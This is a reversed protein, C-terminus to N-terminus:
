WQYLGFARQDADNNGVIVVGRVQALAQLGDVTLRVFVDLDDQQVIGSILKGKQGAFAGFVKEDAAQRILLADEKTYVQPKYVLQCATMGMERIQRFNEHCSKADAIRALTGFKM